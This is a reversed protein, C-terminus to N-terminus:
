DDHSRAPQPPLEPLAKTAQITASVVYDTVATGPAWNRIFSKSEDKPSIRVKTFGSDVLLAELDSILEAGAMCGTYLALDKKLDEPLVATAVIDSIALRGGPKLVRLAEMFVRHKDPSLNIVCNSIIVDVSNDAVPLYEIEGLRFEVNLYNGKEANLRAKSVMEPTMDVGIVRGTEGIQKAALFCDFGGGSGLDLVVEGPKLAAIAQPNGCGLGMNAGEPIANVQEESYGLERSAGDASPTTCCSPGCGCSNSQAVKGYQNRVAQKIEDLQVPM